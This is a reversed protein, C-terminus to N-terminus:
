TPESLALRIRLFALMVFATCAIILSTPEPIDELATPAFSYFVESNNSLDFGPDASTVADYTVSLLDSEARHTANPVDALASSADNDAQAAAKSELTEAPDSDWGVTDNKFTAVDSVGMTDCKNNVVKGECIVLQGAAAIFTLQQSAQGSLVVMETACATQCLVASCVVASTLTVTALSLQRIFPIKM